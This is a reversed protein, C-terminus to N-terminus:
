QKWDWVIVDDDRIWFTNNEISLYQKYPEQNIICQRNILESNAADTIIWGPTNGVFHGCLWNPNIKGNIM